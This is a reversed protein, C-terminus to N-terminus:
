VAIESDWRCVACCVNSKWVAFGCRLRCVAFSTWFAGFGGRHLVTQLASGSGVFRVVVSELSVDLTSWHFLCMGKTWNRKTWALNWSSCFTLRRLSLSSPTAVNFDWNLWALRFVMKLYLIGMISSWLTASLCSRFASEAVLIYRFVSKAVLINRAAEWTLAVLNWSNCKLKIESTNSLHEAHMSYFVVWADLRWFFLLLGQSPEARHLRIVPCRRYWRLRQEM